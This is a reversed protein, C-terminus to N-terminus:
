QCMAAEAVFSVNEALEGSVSGAPAFTGGSIAQLVDFHVYSGQVSALCVILAAVTLWTRRM